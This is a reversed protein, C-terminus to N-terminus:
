RRNQVRQAGRQAVEGTKGAQNEIDHATKQTEQAARQAFQTIQDLNWSVGENLKSMQESLMQSMESQTQTVAEICDRTLDWSKEMATRYVAFAQGPDLNRNLGNELTAKLSKANEAYVEKAAETQARFIRTAGQLSLDTFRMLIAFNQKGLEIFQQSPNQM